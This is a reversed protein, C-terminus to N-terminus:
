LLVLTSETANADFAALSPHARRLIDVIHTTPCNGLKLFVCKPPHGRVLSRQHFDSDKSVIIFSSRAAFRWVDEDDARQLGHDKVHSSGPYLDAILPVIRHSLNHDLLLKM